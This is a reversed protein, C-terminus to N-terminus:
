LILPRALILRLLWTAVLVVEIWFIKLLLMFMIMWLGQSGQKQKSIALQKSKKKALRGVRRKVTNWGADDVNLVLFCFFWHLLTLVLALFLSSNILSTDLLLSSIGEVSELAFAFFVFFSFGFCSVGKILMWHRQDADGVLLLLIRMFLM